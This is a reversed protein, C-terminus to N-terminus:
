IISENDTPSTTTETRDPLGGMNNNTELETGYNNEIENFDITEIQTSTDDKDNNKNAAAAGVFVGGIASLAGALIPKVIEVTEQNEKYWQAGEKFMSLYKDMGKKPPDIKDPLGMNKACMDAFKNAREAADEIDIGKEILNTLLYAFAGKRTEFIPIPQKQKEVDSM